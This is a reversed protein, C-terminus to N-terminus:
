SRDKLERVLLKYIEVARLIERKPVSERATHAQRISGPGILLPKGLSRLAPIDTGFSATKTPFGEVVEMSQPESVKLVELEGRGAVVSTLIELVGESPAVLRVLLDAEAEDPVVNPARGGRILGINLTTEGLRPHSPFRASRVAQLAEILKDVASEGMEPYASHAARGRCSLRTHLIGKHHTVLENDTPEGDVVYRFQLGLERAKLAGASDTEEGVVFLMACAMEGGAALEDAAVIMAAAIGKADCAGRGYILEEDEESPFFPPVTDVHTTLLVAPEGRLALVNFRDGEVRQRRCEWGREQLLQFLFEGVEREEGTVSPIDVLRRTLEVVDMM